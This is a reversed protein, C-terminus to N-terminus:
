PDSVKILQWQIGTIATATHPMLEVKREDPRQEATRGNLLRPGELDGLCRCIYIDDKVHCLQWRCGSYADSVEAALDVGGDATKGNLWRTSTEITGICYFAFVGEMQKVVRWNIGSYQLDTNPALDVAGEVTRGNLWRNGELHGLCRFRYVANPIIGTGSPTKGTLCRVIAEESESYPTGWAHFIDHLWECRPEVGWALFTQTKGAVLGWNFCGVGADNFLALHNEFRSNFPRAMYETCVVPRGLERLNHIESPVSEPALTGDVRVTPDAYRHFTIIDSQDLQFGRL